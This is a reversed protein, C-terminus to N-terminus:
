HARPTQCAHTECSTRTVESQQRFSLTHPWSVDDREDAAGAASMPKNISDRRVTIVAAGSNMMM